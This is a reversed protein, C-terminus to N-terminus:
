PKVAIGVAVWAGAGSDFSSLDAGSQIDFKHAMGNSLNIAWFTGDGVLDVGTWWNSEAFVFYQQIQNGSADLRVIVQSDAVLVGGDPLLKIHFANDGPLPQTNFHPLRTNTCVDFRLIDHTWNAYFMTCGDGALAIHDGGRVGFEADYSALLNGSADFKLIDGTCDAQGVYVNGAADFAFSSPNCDYGSGWSGMPNGDNDFRSVTNGPGGTHSIWHPVYLNRAADFAIGSSEGDSVGILTQRLTGNPAHWQVRGDLRGVFVDGRGAANSVTVIISASMASNGAADRAVATLAHAGDSATASDWTVSYPDSADELGLPAGDLQFQVAAVGVNDSATASVTITGSVNAGSAPGTISVTPPTTDPGPGNSVTVSAPSSTRM